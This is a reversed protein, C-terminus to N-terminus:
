RNRRRWADFLELVGIDRPGPVLEFAQGACLSGPRRVALYFGSWASQSMLKSAQAFGLAADLEPGPLRPASVALDCDPFRLVDGVWLQSEFLGALTLNEGLAGPPLPTDWPAVGVQARVTQWFGYHESPYASLARALGHSAAPADGAIGLPGVACPGAVPQKAFSEDGTRRRAIRAGRAINLSVLIRTM